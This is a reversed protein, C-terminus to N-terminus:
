GGKYRVKQCGLLKGALVVGIGGDNVHTKCTMKKGPSGPHSM